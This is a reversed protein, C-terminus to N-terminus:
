LYQVQEVVGKPRFQLYGEAFCEFYSMSCFYANAERAECNVPSVAIYNLSPSFRGTLCNLSLDDDPKNFKLLSFYLDTIPLFGRDQFYGDPNRQMPLFFTSNLGPAFIFQDSFKLVTKLTGLIYSATIKFMEFLVFFISHCYFIIKSINKYRAKIECRM